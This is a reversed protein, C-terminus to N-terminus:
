DARFPPNKPEIVPLLVTTSLLAAGGLIEVMRRRRSSRPEAEAAVAGPEVDGNATEASCLPATRPDAPNLKSM